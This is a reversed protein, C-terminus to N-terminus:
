METVAADYMNVPDLIISINGDGLITCGSIGYNKVDYDKLFPPLAKVVVQQKGLLKDVFLCFAKDGSDLWMITGEEVDDVDTEIDYFDALRVMPYFGEEKQIMVGKAEDYILEEKKVKFSQRINSIPITFMLDGVTVQMGDVIALTLPIKMTTTMGEGEESTMTITGGVKELNKKVVDMGVGRGSFETVNTNTSFGPMLLMNLIERRSYESEPKTLLGNKKAKALVQESNVGKGDDSISIVIESGTHQASLTITGQEPKGLRVRDEVNEEIGHDMSNRVMHMIPDGISDVITKDVETDAGVTVLSVNKNLKQSMDRVIRNMKQFTGSVPVMRLSMATDQLDDTLKRLQRAAKAFSESKLNAIDPNSTVMSETIVVEGVIDMLTDLKSLNVSILSQKNSHNEKKVEQKKAEEHKEPASEVPPAASDVKETKVEVKEVEVEATGPAEPASAEGLFSECSRVNIASMLADSAIKQEDESSLAFTFGKDIIYAATDANTEVDEPYFRVDECVENVIEVLMFARLNEMGLGEDLYVTIGYKHKDDFIPLSKNAADEASTAPAESLTEGPTKVSAGADSSESILNLVELIKDTIPTMDETLTEDNQVKEIEEKMFDSAMFLLNFLDRSHDHNMGKERIYFFLDEIKHAVTKLSDFEMMASSGKITHMIRFIENISDESFSDEREADLLIGDLQEILSNTEFIYMELMNQMSNDM